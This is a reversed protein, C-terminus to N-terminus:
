KSQGIVESNEAGPPLAYHYTKQVSYKVDVTSLGSADASLEPVGRCQWLLGVTWGKIGTRAQEMLRGSIYGNKPRRVQYTIVRAPDVVYQTKKTVLFHKCFNPNDFPTMASASSSVAGVTAMESFTDVWLNVMALYDQTTPNRLTIEYVDIIATVGISNFFQVDMSASKMYIRKNLYESIGGTGGYADKFINQIDGANIFQDYLLSGGTSQIGITGANAGKELSQYIRLPNMQLAVHQVKRSFGVWQKRKKAPMRKRVYRVSRDYQDTADKTITSKRKRKTMTQSRGSRQRTLLGLSSALSYVEPTFLRGYSTRPRKKGYAM